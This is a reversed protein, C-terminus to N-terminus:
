RTGITVTIAYPQGRRVVKLTAQHGPHCQNLWEALDAIYAVRHDDVGVLIDGVQLGAHAAPSDGIVDSVYVSNQGDPRVHPRVTIGLWPAGREATSIIRQLTTRLYTAPVMLAPLPRGPPGANQAAVEGVIIGGFAGRSDFVPAGSHGPTVPTSLQWFGDPESRGAIMTLSASPGVGPSSGIVIAFRGAEWDRTRTRVFLGVSVTPAYLVAIRMAPDVSFLLAEHSRQLRDVVYISTPAALGRSVVASSTVVYGLSDILLGTGVNVVGRGRRGGQEPFHAQVTVVQPMASEVLAVIDDEVDELVSAHSVCAWLGALLLVPLTRHRTM